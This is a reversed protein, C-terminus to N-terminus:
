HSNNFKNMAPEIGETLWCEIAEAIVPFTELIAEEEFPLPAATVYESMQIRDDQPHGM